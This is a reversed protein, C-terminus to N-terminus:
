RKINPAFDSIIELTNSPNSVSYVADGLLGRDLIAKAITYDNGGPQTDDGFFIVPTNCFFNHIIQSKDKGLKTIDFGTKGAIQAVVKFKNKFFQNFSIAINVREQTASDFEEYERRQTESANRGVISFNLVGPRYDFHYGTKHPFTSMSLQSRLWLIIETPWSSEERYVEVGKSWISNGSCNFSRVISYNLLDSGLQELTKPYDSGTALYIDWHKGLNSLATKMETSITKRSPTLTGDVDFILAPQPNM